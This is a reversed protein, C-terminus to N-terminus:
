PPSHECRIMLIPHVVRFLTFLYYLFHLTTMLHFEVTVGEHIYYHVVQIFLIIENSSNGGLRVTKVITNLTCQYKHLLSIHHELTCQHERKWISDCTCLYMSERRKVQTFLHHCSQIKCHCPYSHIPALVQARGPMREKGLVNMKQQYHLEIKSDVNTKLVIEHYLFFTTM